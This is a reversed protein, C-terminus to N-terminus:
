LLGMSRLHYFLHFWSELGKKPRTRLDIKVLGLNRPNITSLRFPCVKPKGRQGYKLLQAGKKLALIA